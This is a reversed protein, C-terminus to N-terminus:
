TFVAIAVGDFQVIQESTMLYAWVLGLSKQELDFVEIQRRDYLNKSSPRDSQYDELEDLDELIREDAFTLLYGYVQEDGSTMAPYGMPLNFLQGIAIAQQSGIVRDACYQAYNSFNPKLTGYVFVNVESKQPTEM